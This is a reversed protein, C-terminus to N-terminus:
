DAIGKTDIGFALQRMFKKNSVKERTANVYKYLDSYNLRNSRKKISARITDRMHKTSNIFNLCRTGSSTQTRRIGLFSYTTRPTIAILVIDKLFSDFEEVTIQSTRNITSYISDFMASKLDRRTRVFSGLSKKCAKLLQILDPKGNIIFYDFEELSDLSSLSIESSYPSLMRRTKLLQNLTYKKRRYVEVADFYYKFLRLPFGKIDTFGTTKYRYHFEPHVQLGFILGAYQSEFGKIVGNFKGAVQLLSSLSQPNVAQHHFARANYADNKQSQINGLITRPQFKFKKHTVRHHGEVDILSGGFFVSLLQCGRCIGMIPKGSQYCYNTIFLELMTRFLFDRNYSAEETRNMRRGYLWPEVNEGGPLILGDIKSAYKKALKRVSNVNKSRCSLVEKVCNSNSDKFISLESHLGNIDFNTYIYTRSYDIARWINNSQIIIHRLMNGTWPTHQYDWSTGIISKGIDITKPTVTKKRSNFKRM